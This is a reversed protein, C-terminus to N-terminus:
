EADARVLRVLGATKAHEILDQNGIASLDSKADDTGTLFESYPGDRDIAFGVTIGQRNAKCIFRDTDTRWTRRFAVQINRCNNASGLDCIDIGDM